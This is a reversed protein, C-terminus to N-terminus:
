TLAAGCGPCDGPKDSSLKQSCESCHHRKPKIAFKSILTLFLLIIIIVILGGIIEERPKGRLELFLVVMFLGTIINFARHWPNDRAEISAWKASAVRQQVTAHTDVATSNGLIPPPKQSPSQDLTQPVAPRTEPSAMITPPADGTATPTGGTAGSIWEEVAASSTPRNAPDKALCAMIMACVADPVQNELGLEALREALPKPDENMVQYAIDGSYFPTRSTLLEYFTSGLAYLDDSARPIEGRMQQPSMYVSTGSMSGQMSSRSFSEALTAAIGFDALKLRGQQDILMNAPKLDRHVIKNQHAYELADCLQTMLPRLNEWKFLSGPQQLRLSGLDQGDIYELTVFPGEGVAQILDHIRIINPHHLHRSKQVERTLDSLASPDGALEAPLRKIAIEENLQEDQALWVEGRGGRGLQRILRYRGSLLDNQGSQVNTPAQLALWRDAVQITQGSYVRLRGLVAAGDLYIGGAGPVALDEIFMEGGQVSLRAHEPAASEVPINSGAASGIAYIGEGLLYESIVVGDSGAVLVKTSDTSM